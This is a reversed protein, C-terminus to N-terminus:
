QMATRPIRYAYTHGFCITNRYKKALTKSELGNLREVLYCSIAPSLDFPSQTYGIVRIKVQDLTLETGEAHVFKARDSDERLKDKYKIYIGM